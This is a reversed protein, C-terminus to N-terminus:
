YESCETVIRQHGIVYAVNFAVVPTNRIRNKISIYMHSIKSLVSLRLDRTAASSCKHWNSLYRRSTTIAIKPIRFRDVIGLVAREVWM